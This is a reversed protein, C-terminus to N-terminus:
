IKGFINTTLTEIYYKYLLNNLNKSYLSYEPNSETLIVAHIYNTDNGFINKFINMIENTKGKELLGEAKNFLEYQKKFNIKM